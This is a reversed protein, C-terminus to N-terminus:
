PFDLSHTIIERNARVWSDLTQLQPNLRKTLDINSRQDVRCFFYFMNSMDDAGPFQLSRFQDATIQRDKFALPGLHRTFTAAVEQVTVKDGSLSLTRGEHQAPSAFLAAVARGADETCILDLPTQGMPIEFAYFHTDVLKPRLPPTLLAEFHCPVVVTTLPLRLHRMYKETEAKADMHKARLGMITIVSAQSSYVVQRVRAAACADSIAKGQALENDYGSACSLDSFTQAFCGQAGELAKYLSATDRFDAQIVDVGETRLATTRPDQANPTIFRVEFDRSLACAVSCGVLDAGDFVAIINAM